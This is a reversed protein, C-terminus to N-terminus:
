DSDTTFKSQDSSQKGCWKAHRESLKVAEDGVYARMEASDAAGWWGNASGPAFVCNYVSFHGGAEKAKVHHLHFSLPDLGAAQLWKMGSVTETWERICRWHAEGMRAFHGSRKLYNILPPIRAATRLLKHAESPPDRRHPAEHKKAATSSATTPPPRKGLVSVPTTPVPQKVVSIAPVVKGLAPDWGQAEAALYKAINLGISSIFGKDSDYQVPLGPSAKMLKNADAVHRLVPYRKKLEHVRALWSERTISALHMPTMAITTAVKRYGSKCGNEDMSCETVKIERSGDRLLPIWPVCAKMNQQLFQECRSWSPGTTSRTTDRAHIMAQLAGPERSDIVIACPPM